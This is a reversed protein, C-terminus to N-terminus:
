ADGTLFSLYDLAGQLIYAAALKDVLEARRQRTTDMEDILMRQVAQTSMREDWLAIPLDRLALLNQAFQRTAQCRSGETGDMNVPWGLVLGGVGREDAIALLKAALDRFKGRALTELPSAVRRAPDSIALGVTKAGVDLGLLRVGSRLAGALDATKDLLM